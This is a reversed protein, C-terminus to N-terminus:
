MDAREGTYQNQQKKYKNKEEKKVQKLKLNEGGGKERTNLKTPGLIPTHSQYANFNM